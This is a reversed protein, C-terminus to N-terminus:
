AGYKTQVNSSDTSGRFPREEDEQRLYDEKSKQRSKRLENIGVIAVIVFVGVIVGVIIYLTRIAEKSAETLQILVSTDNPVTGKMRDEPILSVSTISCILAKTFNSGTYNLKIDESVNLTIKPFITAPYLKLLM